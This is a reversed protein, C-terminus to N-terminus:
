KFYILLEELHEIVLKPNNEKIKEMSNPIKSDIKGISFCGAENARKIDESGDGVFAMEKLHVNIQESVYTFHPIGKRFGEAIRSGLILNFHSNLSPYKKLTRILDDHPVSSCLFLKYGRKQLEELTRITDDFM